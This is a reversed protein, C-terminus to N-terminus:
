IEEDEISRRIKNFARGHFIGLGLPLADLSPPSVPDLQLAITRQLPPGSFLLGRPGQWTCLIFWLETNHLRVHWRRPTLCDAGCRGGRMSCLGLEAVGSTRFAARRPNCQPICLVRSHAFPEQMAHHLGASTGVKQQESVISETGDFLNMLLQNSMARLASVTSLM